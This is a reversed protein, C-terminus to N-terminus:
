EDSLSRYLSQRTRNLLVGVHSRTLGTVESIEEYSLGELSLTLVQRTAVPLQRVAILLQNLAHDTSTNIEPSGLSSQHHHDEFSETGPQRAYSAVHSVARNHAIRLIYTKVSSRGDFRQLGQWVALAIEQLLEQRLAENAEYSSAVRSLLPGHCDFVDEFRHAM